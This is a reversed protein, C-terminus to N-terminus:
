LIYHKAMRPCHSSVKAQTQGKLAPARYSLICIKKVQVSREGAARRPKRGYTKVHRKRKGASLAALSPFATPM